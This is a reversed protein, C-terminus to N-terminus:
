VIGLCNAADLSRAGKSPARTSNTSRGIRSASPSDARSSVGASAGNDICDEGKGERTGEEREEERGTPTQGRRSRATGHFEVAAANGFAASGTSRACRRQVRFIGHRQLDPHRLQTGDGRRGPCLSLLAADQ